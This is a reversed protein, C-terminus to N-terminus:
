TDKHMIFLSSSNYSYIWFPIDYLESKFLLNVPSSIFHNISSPQLSPVIPTCLHNSIIHPLYGDSSFRASQQTPAQRYLETLQPPRHSTVVSAFRHWNSGVCVTMPSFFVCSSKPFKTTCLPAFKLYKKTWLWVRWVYSVNAKVYFRFTPKANRVFLGWLVNSSQIIQDALSDFATINRLIM